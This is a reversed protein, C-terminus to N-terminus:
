KGFSPRSAEGRQDPDRAPSPRDFLVKLDPLATEPEGVALDAGAGGQVAVEHQGHGGEGDASDGGPGAGGGGGRRGSSRGGSSGPSIGSVTASTLRRDPSSV